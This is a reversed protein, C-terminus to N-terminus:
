SPMKLRTGLLPTTRNGVELRRRGNVRSERPWGCFGRPLTASRAFSSTPTARLKPMAASSTSCASLKIRGNRLETALIRARDPWAPDSQISPRPRTHPRNAKAREQKVAIALPEIADLVWLQPRERMELALALGHESWRPSGPYAAALQVAVRRFTSKAVQEALGRERVLRDLAAALRLLGLVVEARLSGNEWGDAAKLRRLGLIAYKAHYFPVGDPLDCLRRWLGALSRDDQFEAVVALYFGLPDAAPATSFSGLFRERLAFRARLAAAAGALRAQPLRASFEIVSGLCTWASAMSVTPQEFSGWNKEVWTAFASDLRSAFNESDGFAELWTALLQGRETLNLPGFYFRNWLLDSVAQEADSQFATLWGSADAGGLRSLWSEPLHPSSGNM